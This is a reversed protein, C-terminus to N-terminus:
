DWSSALPLIWRLVAGHLATARLIPQTALRQLHTTSLRTAPLLLLLLLIPACGSGGLADCRQRLIVHQVPDLVKCHHKCLLQHRAYRLLLQIQSEAPRQIGDASLVGAPM